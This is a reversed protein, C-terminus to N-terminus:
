TRKKKKLPPYIVCLKTMPPLLKVGFVGVKLSVTSNFSLMHQKLQCVHCCTRLRRSASQKCRQVEEGDEEENDATSLVIVEQLLVPSPNMGHVNMVSLM